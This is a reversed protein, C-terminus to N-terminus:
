RSECSEEVAYVLKTRLLRRNITDGIYAHKDTEVEAAWTKDVRVVRHNFEDGIYIYLRDYRHLLHRSGGGNLGLWGLAVNGAGLKM